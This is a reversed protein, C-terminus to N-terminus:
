NAQHQKFHEKNSRALLIQCPPTQCVRLRRLRFSSVQPGSHILQLCLLCLSEALASLCSALLYLITKQLLLNNAGPTTAKEHSEWALIKNHGLLLCTSCTNSHNTDVGPYIVGCIVGVQQLLNSIDTQKCRWQLKACSAASQSCWAPTAAGGGGQQVRAAQACGM